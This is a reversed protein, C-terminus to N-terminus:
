LRFAESKIDHLVRFANGRLRLRMTSLKYDRSSRPEELFRRTSPLKHRFTPGSTDRLRSPSRLLSFNEEKCTGYAPGFCTSPVSSASSFNGKEHFCLFCTTLTFPVIFFVVIRVRGPTSPQGSFFEGKPPVRRLEFTDVNPISSLERGGKWEHGTRRRRSVFPRVRGPLLVLVAVLALIPLQARLKEAREGKQRRNQGRISISIKHRARFPFPFFKRIYTGRGKEWSSKSCGM